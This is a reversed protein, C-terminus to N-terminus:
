VAGPFNFSKAWILPVLCTQIKSKPLEESRPIEQWHLLHRTLQEPGPVPSMSGPGPVTSMTGPGPIPSVSVPCPVPSMSSAGPLLSMSGPGLVLSISGPGLVPSQAQDLNLGTGSGPQDGQRIWPSGLAQGFNQAGCRGWDDIAM